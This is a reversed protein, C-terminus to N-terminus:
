NAKSQYNNLRARERPQSGRDGFWWLTAATAAFTSSQIIQEQYDPQANFFIITTIIWLLITLAPRTISRVASVWKYSEPVKAEADMSAQLGRWSGEVDALALEAESEEHRAQMQKDILVTEHEWKRVEHEMQQKREWYGAFRNLVTGIIGFVGGGATSAAIGLWDEM